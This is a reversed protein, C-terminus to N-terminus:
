RRKDVGIKPCLPSLVCQSCKPSIPVCVNQGWLVLLTNLEIWYQRPVLRKLESETEDPHTTQIWGLRNAIRHVHTDVCISPINFAMGRVLQATKRGVGKISLLEEESSPVHGKFREILEKCVSRVVQAKKRYFGLSFFMGELEGIPVLLLEQPTRVRQFLKKSIPYTATDKARLSLLCSILIVFPDHGYEAVLATTLTPPMGKTAERM